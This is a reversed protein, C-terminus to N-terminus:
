PHKLGKPAGSIRLFGLCVGCWVSAAFCRAQFLQFDLADISFYGVQESLVRCPRREITRTKRAKSGSKVM